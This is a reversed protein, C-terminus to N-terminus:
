PTLTLINRMVGDSPSDPCVFTSVYPYQMTQIDNCMINAIHMCKILIENGRNAVGLGKHYTHSKM